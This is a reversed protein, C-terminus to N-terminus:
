LAIDGDAAAVYLVLLLAGRSRGGRGSFGRSKDPLTPVPRLSALGPIYGVNRMGIKMKTFICRYFQEYPKGLLRLRHQHEETRHLVLPWQGPILLVHMGVFYQFVGRAAPNQM